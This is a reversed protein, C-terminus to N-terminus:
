FYFFVSGLDLGMPCLDLGQVVAAAGLDMSGTVMSPNGDGDEHTSVV